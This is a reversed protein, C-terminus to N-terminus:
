SGARHIWGNVTFRSDAFAKTPVRVPLLEHENRSPFLVLLDQRPSLIQSRDTPVRRGDIIESDFLRLEGGSYGRPEGHFFYVFSLERTSTEDGDHHLRYYDGDGSATMQIEIHGLPFEDMRLRALSPALIERLKDEVLGAVHDLRDITRARRQREDVVLEGSDIVTAASFSEERDLAFRVLEDRREGLFNEVTLFYWDPPIGVFGFRGSGGPVGGPKGSHGGRVLRIMEAIGGSAAWEPRSGALVTHFFLANRQITAPAIDHALLDATFTDTLGMARQLDAVPARWTYYRAQETLFVDEARAFGLSGLVHPALTAGDAVLYNVEARASVAMSDLVEKYLASLLGVNTADEDGVFVPSIAYTEDGVAQVQCLATIHRAGIGWPPWPRDRVAVFISSDGDELTPVLVEDVLHPAGLRRCFSRVAALATHSLEDFVDIRTADNHPGHLQDVRQEAAGAYSTM